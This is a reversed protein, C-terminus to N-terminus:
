PTVEAVQAGRAPEDHAPRPAPDHAELEVVRLRLRRSGRWVDIEPVFAAHVRAGRGPDREAQRFAIGDREELGQRLTIQLHREGVVRTREVLAGRVRLLPEPNGMGFPGLREIEEALGEDIEHLEVDLDAAALGEAAGASAGAELLARRAAEDFDRAFRDLAERRVTLGAAAAHGGFRVLHEACTLLGQYLSLSCGLPVRASGRGHDGELGIVVAPRRYREVLKSAVIGVVGHHWGEGAVVIAHRGAREPAGDLQACAEQYVHEQIERRRQNTELCAAALESARQLDRELLLDLALQADGLRGPANLLPAVRFSVDFASLPRGGALQPPETHPILLGQLELLARLGPRRGRSLERLGAAVLVRNEDHLPVLDAITGLAALDLLERPDPAPRSAARLRTRVAAALYFGVGVSALGKFPFRCGPQHPNILALADPQREPVQHHDVVIVEVGRARARALADHDSTGCDGTVVLRCGADALYDAMEVSFGYGADRRAVRAHVTAGADRLFSGLLATTTVGDADYDGFLGIPEGSIVAAALRDAARGFGAMTAGDTEPARLQALRPELFRRAQEISSIGRRLLLQATTPRVGVATALDAASPPDAGPAAPVM